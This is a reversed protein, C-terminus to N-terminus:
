KGKPQESAGIRSLGREFGAGDLTAEGVLRLVM